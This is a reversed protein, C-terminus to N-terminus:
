KAQKPQSSELMKAQLGLIMLYRKQKPYQKVAQETVGLYDALIKYTPKKM